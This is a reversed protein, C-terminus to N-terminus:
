INLVGRQRTSLYMYCPGFCSIIDCVTDTMISVSLQGITARTLFENESSHALQVLILGMYAERGKLPVYAFPIAGTTRLILPFDNLIHYLHSIKCMYEM